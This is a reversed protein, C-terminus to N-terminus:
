VLVRMLLGDSKRPRGKKKREWSALALVLRMGNAYTSLIIGTLPRHIVRVTASVRTSATLRESLRHFLERNHWTVFVRTVVWRQKGVRSAIRPVSTKGVKKNKKRKRKQVYTLDYPEAHWMLSLLKSCFNFNKHMIFNEAIVKILNLVCRM